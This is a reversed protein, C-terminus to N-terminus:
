ISIAWAESQYLFAASLGPALTLMPLAATVRQWRSGHCVYAARVGECVGWAAEWGVWANHVSPWYYGDGQREISSFRRDTAWAEFAQRTPEPLKITM